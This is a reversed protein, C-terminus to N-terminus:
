INKLESKKCNEHKRTTLTIHRRECYQWFGETSGNEYKRVGKIIGDDELQKFAAHKFQDGYGYQYPVKVIKASKLGYNISVECAFYSNGNVKDFWEFCNIDITKVTQGDIQNAQYLELLKKKSVQKLKRNWYEFVKYEENKEFYESLVFPIDHLNCFIDKTSGFGQNQVLFKRQDNNITTTTM